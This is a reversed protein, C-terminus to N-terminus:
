ESIYNLWFTWDCSPSSCCQVCVMVWLYLDLAMRIYWVSEKFPSRKMCVSPVPNINMTLPRSSSITYLALSIYLRISLPDALLSKHFIILDFHEIAPHLPVVNSACWWEFTYIWHWWYTDFARREKFPSRKMCVSPVPNINMTLPRSSSITYLALSIYLRISLPDALLCVASVKNFLCLLYM